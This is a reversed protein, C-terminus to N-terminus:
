ILRENKLIAKYSFHLMLSSSLIQLAFISIMIAIQYQIATIPTAGGLMQGTMMGPLSVLGLTSMTAIQPAIGTRLAIQLYPMITEKKDAGLMQRLQFEGRNDKIQKHFLNLVIVNTRLSNGLLMGAVPIFVSADQLHHQSILLIFYLLISVFTLILSCATSFFMEKLPLKVGRVTTWSAIIIMIIIWLFNVWVLNLAFVYKLYIGVLFLQLSMRILSWFTQKVVGLKYHLSIMIIPLVLAYAAIMGSLTISIDRIM